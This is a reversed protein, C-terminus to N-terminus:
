KPLLKEIKALLRENTFPKSLYDNAGAEFAKDVDGVMQLATLILIPTTKTVEASRLVRCVEYGDMKPIMLDLLVLDPSEAKAKVIAEQGDVATVIAYGAMDLRLQLSEAIDPEDEVVLIKKKGGGFIGM